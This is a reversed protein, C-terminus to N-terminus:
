TARRRVRPRSPWDAILINPRKSTNLDILTDITDRTAARYRHSDVDGSPGVHATM